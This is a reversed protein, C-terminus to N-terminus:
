SYMVFAQSILLKLRLSPVTSTEQKGPWHDPFSANCSHTHFSLNLSETLSQLTKPSDIVDDQLTIVPVLSPACLAHLRMPTAPRQHVRAPWSHKNSPPAPHLWVPTAGQSEHYRKHLLVSCCLRSSHTFGVRGVVSLADGVFLVSVRVCVCVCMRVCACM